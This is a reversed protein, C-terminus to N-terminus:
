KLRAFKTSMVKGSNDIRCTVIGIDKGKSSSSLKMRYEQISRSEHHDMDRADDSPSEVVISKANLQQSAMASAACRSLDADVNAQAHTVALGTITLMSLLTKKLTTM